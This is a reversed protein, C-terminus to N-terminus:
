DVKDGNEEGKAETKSAMVEEVIGDVAREQISAMDEALARAITGKADQITLMFTFLKQEADSRFRPYSDAYPFEAVAILVRALGKGNMVSSYGRITKALQKYYGAAIQVEKTDLPGLVEESVGAAEAAKNAEVNAKQAEVDLEM